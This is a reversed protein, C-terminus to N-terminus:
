CGCVPGHHIDTRVSGIGGGGRGNAEAATGTRTGTPQLGWLSSGRHRDGAVACLLPVQVQGCMQGSVHESVHRYADHKCWHAHTYVHTYVDGKTGVVM